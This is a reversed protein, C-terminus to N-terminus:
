SVVQGATRLWDAMVTNIDKQALGGLIAVNRLSLGPIGPVHFNTGHRHAFMLRKFANGLMVARYAPRLSEDMAQENEKAIAIASPCTASCAYFSMSINSYLAPILPRTLLEPIRAVNSILYYCVGADRDSRFARDEPSKWGHEPVPYKGKEMSVRAAEVKCDAFNVNCCEPLGLLRGVALHYERLHELSAPTLTFDEKSRHILQREIRLLDDLGSRFRREDEKRFLYIKFNSTIILKPFPRIKEVGVPVIEYCIGTDSLQDFGAPAIKSRFKDRTESLMRFVGKVAGKNKPDIGIDAFKVLELAAITHPNMFRAVDTGMVVEGSDVLSSAAKALAQRQEM